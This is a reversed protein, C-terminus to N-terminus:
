EVSAWQSLEKRTFWNPTQDANADRREVTNAPRPAAHDQARDWRSKYLPLSPALRLHDIQSPPPFPRFDRLEDHKHCFRDAAEQAQLGAYILDPDDTENLYVSEAM